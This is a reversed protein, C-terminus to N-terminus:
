LKNISIANLSDLVSGFGNYKAWTIYDKIINSDPYYNINKANPNAGIIEILKQIKIQYISKGYYTASHVIRPDNLHYLLYPIYEKNKSNIKECAEIIKDKDNSMLNAKIEHINNRQCSYFIFVIIITLPYKINM